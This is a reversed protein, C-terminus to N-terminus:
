PPTKPATAVKVSLTAQQGVLNPFRWENVAGLMRPNVEPISSRLIRVQAPVGGTRVEFGLEVEGRLQIGFPSELEPLTAEAPMSTSLRAAPSAARRRLSTAVVLYISYDRLHDFLRGREDVDEYDRFHSIYETTSLELERASSVFTKGEEAPLSRTMERAIGSASTWRAALSLREPEEARHEFRALWLQRRKPLSLEASGRSLDFTGTGLVALFADPLQRSITALWQRPTVDSGDTEISFGLADLAQRDPNTMRAEFVRVELILRDTKTQASSTQPQVAGGALSAVFILAFSPRISTTLKM